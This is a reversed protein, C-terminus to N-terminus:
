SYLVYTLLKLIHFSYFIRRDRMELEKLSHTFSGKVFRVMKIASDFEFIKEFYRLFLTMCENVYIDIGNRVTRVLFVKNLPAQNIRVRPRNYLSDM